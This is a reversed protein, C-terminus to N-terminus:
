IEIVVGPGSSSEESLDDYVKGMARHLNEWDAAQTLWGSSIRLTRRAPDDPVGMAQMVMSPGKKGASCAAGTSLQYGLKDLRAIWRSSLYKPMSVLCTNWLRPAGRGHIRAEPWQDLVREEFADRPGASPDEKLEKAAAELAAAMAAIGAVDETGARSGMEQGGGCQLRLGTWESGLVLCGTGKPGGFKHAGLAVGACASWPVPTGQQKGIWQVADCFLEVGASQCIELVEPLPQLVGTENNAAMVCVVATSDRSIQESMWDLDVRGNDHVPIQRVRKEGWHHLAAERVAPHEVASIWIEQGPEARRAAERIFGNCAETAGSTFVLQAEGVGAIGAIKARSDDLIVKARSGHRYVASPNGWATDTVEEWAAKAAPRMPTTANWDFYIM